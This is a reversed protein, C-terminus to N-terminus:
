ESLSKNGLKSFTQSIKNLVGTSRKTISKLPLKITGFGKKHKVVGKHGGSPNFDFWQYGNNCADKTIQNMLLHWPHYSFYDKLTAGHWGVVHQNHLFVLAGSVVKEDVLALYLKIKESQFGFMNEFLGLPYVFRAKDGWRDISDQYVEYYERWDEISKAIRFTVGKRQAQNVEQRYTRSFQQWITEYGISLDIYQTFDEQIEGVSSLDLDVLSKDFPNTLWFLNKINEKIWEVIKVGYESSLQSACIWGGYVYAANSILMPPQLPSSQAMRIMPFIVFTDDDFTFKKAAIEMNPFTDSFIKSWMPTHFFTAYDCQDAIRQWEEFDVDEQIQFQM